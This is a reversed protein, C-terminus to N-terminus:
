SYTSVESKSIPKPCENECLCVDKNFFVNVKEVMQKWILDGTERQINSIVSHQVNGIIDKHTVGPPLLFLGIM